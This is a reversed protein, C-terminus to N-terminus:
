RKNKEQLDGEVVQVREGHPGDIVLPLVVVLLQLHTLM